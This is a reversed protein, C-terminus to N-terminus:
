VSARQVLGLPHSTSPGSEGLICAPTKDEPSTPVTFQEYDPESCQGMKSQFVSVPTFLFINLFWPMPNTLQFSGVPRSGGM